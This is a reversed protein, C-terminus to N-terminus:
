LLKLLIALIQNPPYKIRTNFDLQLEKWVLSTYIFVKLYTIGSSLLYGFFMSNLQDAAIVKVLKHM